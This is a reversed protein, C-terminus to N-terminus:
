RAYRLGDRRPRRDGSVLSKEPVFGLVAPLAAILAGPRNLQFDSQSTTMGRRHGNGGVPDTRVPGRGRRSPIFARSPIAPALASDRRARQAGRRHVTHGAGPHGTHDDSTGQQRWSATVQVDDVLAVLTLTRTDGASESTVTQDVAYTDDADVPPAPPLDVTVESVQTEDGGVAATFSPCDSLQDVRARMSPAPRAVTVTLSADSDIM